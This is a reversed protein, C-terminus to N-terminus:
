SPVFRYHPPTATKDIAARHHPSGLAVCVLFDCVEAARTVAAPVQRLALVVVDHALVNEKLGLPQGKINGTKLAAVLDALCRVTAPMDLETAIESIASSPVVELIWGVVDEVTWGAPWQIVADIAPTLKALDRVYGNGADDGDVLAVIGGRLRRLEGATFAVSANETPAVGFVASFPPQSQAAEAVESLRTMWETEFRGEPVLVFPHMLAELVRPRNQLYLKRENNSATQSLKSALFPKSVSAGNAKSMLFVDTPERMAAVRPSHTTCITQDALAAADALLRVQLGPALHLEPEELALVFSQGRLKRAKGVELLLLLTQLSVLGSGHRSAPLVGGATKYHPLLAQLVSESDGATIRLLFQPRDILLRALQTNINSVLETLEPSTEIPHVPSRLENRQALIRSAPIGAANSVTKRFLDSAFSAVADWSRRAPLVFYGAENVLSAPVSEIPNTDSFPDVVDDDDHFYRKSEVTLEDHDFRAVFGIQVALQRDGKHSTHLHGDPALWKPVGRGMRFWHSHHEPDNSDFGTLTAVIRIRDSPKPASGTFDHETLTRVMRSRGFVLSLADILSSKGCGNPGIVATHAHFPFDGNALGRFGHVRLRAIRMAAFRDTAESKTRQGYVSDCGIPSAAASRCESGLRLRDSLCGSASDVTLGSPHHAPIM